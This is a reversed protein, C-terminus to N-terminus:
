AQLPVSRMKAPNAKFRQAQPAKINGTWEDLCTFSMGRSDQIGSLFGMKWPNHILLKKQLKPDLITYIYMGAYAIWEFVSKSFDKKSTAQIPAALKVERVINAKIPRLLANSSMVATSQEM